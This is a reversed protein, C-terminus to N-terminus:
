TLVKKARTLLLNEIQVECDYVPTHAVGSVKTETYRYDIDAELCATRVDRLERYSWPIFGGSGFDHALSELIVGDFQPGLCWYTEPKNIGARDQCFHDFEMLSDIVPHRNGTFEARKAEDEQNMWWLLTSESVTRGADLQPQIELARYFQDWSRGTDDFLVAGISLVVSKPKVDLTEIDFMIEM